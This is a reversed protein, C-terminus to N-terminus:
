SEETHPDPAPSELNQRAIPYAVVAVQWPHTQNKRETHSAHFQLLLEKLQAAEEDSLYLISNLSEGITESPNQQHKELTSLYDRFGTWTEKMLYDAILNREADLNDNSASGLNVVAPVRRYFKACIGHILETHDLTVLGLTELKKLHFSVASPSIGLHSSLQKATVPIDELEMYRLLRQRQPNMYIDLQKQTTLTIETHM